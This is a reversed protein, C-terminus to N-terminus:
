LTRLESLTGLMILNQAQYLETFIRGGHSLEDFQLYDWNPSPEDPIFRGFTGM